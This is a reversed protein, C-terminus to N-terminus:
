AARGHGCSAARYVGECPSGASVWDNCRYCFPQGASNNLRGGYACALLHPSGSHPSGSHLGDRPDITTTM